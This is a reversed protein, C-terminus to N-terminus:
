RGHNAAVAHDGGFWPQVVEAVAHGLLEQGRDDVHVVDTYWPLQDLRNFIGTLDRFVDGHLETMRRRILEFTEQHATSAEDLYELGLLHRSRDLWPQFCVAVKVDAAQCLRISRTMNDLYVNVISRRVIDRKETDYLLIQAQRRLSQLAAEDMQGHVFPREYWYKMVTSLNYPDGPRTGLQWPQYIDNLGNLFIVGYPKRPLVAIFLALMEQTSIFGGMACNFVHPAWLPFRQALLRELVAHWSNEKTSASTGVALSGGLVFIRRAADVADVDQPRYRSLNHEYLCNGIATTTHESAANWFYHKGEFRYGAPLRGQAELEQQNGVLGLEGFGFYPQYSRSEYRYDSMM